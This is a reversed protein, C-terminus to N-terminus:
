AQKDIEIVQLVSVPVDNAQLTGEDMSNMRSVASDPFIIPPNVAENTVHQGYIGSTVIDDDSLSRGNYHNQQSSNNLLEDDDDDSSNHVNSMETDDLNQNTDGICTSDDANQDNECDNFRNGRDSHEGENINEDSDSTNSRNENARELDVVLEEQDSSWELRQAPSDESDCDQNVANQTIDAPPECPTKGPVISDDSDSECESEFQLCKPKLKSVTEAVLETTDKESGISTVNKCANCECLIHKRSTQGIGYVRLEPSENIGANSEINERSDIQMAEDIGNVVATSSGIDHSSSANPEITENSDIQMSEDTCNVVAESSEIDCSNNEVAESNEDDNSLEACSVVKQTAQSTGGDTIPETLDDSCNSQLDQRVEELPGSNVASLQTLSSITLQHIKVCNDTVPAHQEYSELSEMIDNVIVPSHAAEDTVSVDSISEVEATIETIDNSKSEDVMPVTSSTDYFEDKVAEIYDDKNNSDATSDINQDVSIIIPEMSDKRDSHFDERMVALPSTSEASLVKESSVSIEDCSGSELFETKDIAVVHSVSAEELPPVDSINEDKMVIETVFNSGDVAKDEDSHDDKNSLGVSSIINQNTDDTISDSFNKDNSCDSHDDQRIKPLPSANVAKLIKVPSITPQKADVCGDTTNTQQEQSETSYKRILFDSNETGLGRATAAEELTSADSIKEEKPVIDMVFPNRTCEVESGESDSSIVIMEEM